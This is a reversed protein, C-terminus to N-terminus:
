LWDGFVLHVAMHWRGPVLFLRRCNARPANRPYSAPKSLGVSAIHHRELIVAQAPQLTGTRVDVVTVHNLVLLDDVPPKQAPISESFLLVMLFLIGAHVASRGGIKM